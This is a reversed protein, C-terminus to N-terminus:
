DSALLNEVLNITEGLNKLLEEYDIDTKSWFENGLLKKINGYYTWKSNNNICAVFWSNEFIGM